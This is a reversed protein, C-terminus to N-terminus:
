DTITYQYPLSTLVEVEEGNPATSLAIGICIYTGASTPMPLTKGDEDPILLEGAEIAAGAVIKITNSCGLLDINVIEGVNASDTTVGFPLSDADALTVKEPDEDLVVLRCPMVNIKAYKTICDEHIGLAVNSLILPNMTFNNLPNEFSCPIYNESLM